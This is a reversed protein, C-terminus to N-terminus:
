PIHLARLSIRRECYGLDKNSHVGWFLAYTRGQVWVNKKSTYVGLMERLFVRTRFLTHLPRSIVALPSTLYVANREEKAYNASLTSQAIGRELTPTHAVNFNSTRGVYGSGLSTNSSLNRTDTYFGREDTRILPLTIPTTLPFRPIWPTSIGGSSLAATHNTGLHRPIHLVSSGLWTSPRFVM